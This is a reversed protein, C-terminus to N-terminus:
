SVTVSSGIDRGRGRGHGRGRRRSRGRNRILIAYGVLGNVLMLANTAVFVWNKVLYSYITFGVSAAIQGVFLWISVGESAGEQWQKWVQKAITLVLIFSSAWGIVQIEM